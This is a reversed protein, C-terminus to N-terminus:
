DCSRLCIGQGAQSRRKAGVVSCWSPEGKQVKECQKKALEKRPNKLESPELPRVKWKKRKEERERESTRVIGLMGM